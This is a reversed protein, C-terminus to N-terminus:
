PDDTRTYDIRQSEPSGLILEQIEAQTYLRNNVYENYYRYMTEQNSM